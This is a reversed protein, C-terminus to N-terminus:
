EAAPAGAAAVGGDGAGPEEDEDDEEDGAFLAFEKPADRHKEWLFLRAGASPSWSTLFRDSDELNASIQQFPPDAHVFYPMLDVYTAFKTGRAMWAVLNRLPTLSARTLEVIMVIIQASEVDSRVIKWMDGCRLELKRRRGGGERTELRLLQGPVRRTVIMKEEPLEALKNAAKEAAAFRSPALEVGIVSLLNPYQLFATPFAPRFSHRPPTHHTRRQSAAVNSVALAGGWAGEVGGV